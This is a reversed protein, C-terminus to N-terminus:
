LSCIHLIKLQNIVLVNINVLGCGEGSGLFLENNLVRTGRLWRQVETPRFYWVVKVMKESKSTEFIEILKGIHPWPQGEGWLYVSDYLFYEVGDYTFSGYYQRELSRCSLREKRGWRFEIDHSTEM